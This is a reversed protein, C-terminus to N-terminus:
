VAHRLQTVYCNRWATHRHDYNFRILVPTADPQRSNCHIAIAM